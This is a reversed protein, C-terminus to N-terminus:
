AAVTQEVTATWVNTQRGDTGGDPRAIIFPIIAGGASGSATTLELVLFEGGNVKLPFKGPYALLVDGNDIDTSAAIATQAPKKGDGSKLTSTAASSLTLSVLNTVTGGLTPKTGLTLVPDVAHATFDETVHAGFQLVSVNCPILFEALEAATEVESATIHGDDQAVLIMLPESYAM